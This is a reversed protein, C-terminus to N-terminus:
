SSRRLVTMKGPIKKGSDRSRRLAELQLSPKLEVFELEYVEINGRTKRGQLELDDQLPLSERMQKGNETVDLLLKRASGPNDPLPMHKQNPKPQQILGRNSNFGREDNGEDSVFEEANFDKSDHNEVDFIIAGSFKHKQSGKSNQKNLRPTNISLHVNKSHSEKVPQGSKPMKTIMGKFTDISERLQREHVDKEAPSM